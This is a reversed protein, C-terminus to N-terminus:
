DGNNEIRYIVEDFACRYLKGDKDMLHLLGTKDVETIMLSLPTDSIKPLIYDAFENRKYLYNNYQEILASTPLHETQKMREVIGEAVLSVDEQKGTKLYVSTVNQLDSSFTDQNVNLGIGVITYKIQEGQLFHEILIGTIKKNEIYIDNPWKIYVNKIKFVDELFHVLSLSVRRCIDFQQSPRINPYLLVSLLLNKGSESEWIKGQRGRGQEQRDATIAFYAPLTKQKQLYEEVMDKLYINTSSLCHIHLHNQM